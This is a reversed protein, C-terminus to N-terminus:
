ITYFDNNSKIWAEDAFNPWNDKNFGVANKLKEKTVNIEFAEHENCYSLSKWPLAYYDDGMGLFGGFSLVAYRVEGSLKDLVIEEIKGLNEKDLHGIVKQGIVDATRVVQNSHEKM